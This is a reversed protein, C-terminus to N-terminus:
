TCKMRGQQSPGQVDKHERSRPNLWHDIPKVSM